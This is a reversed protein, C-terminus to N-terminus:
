ELEKLFGEKIYGTERPNLPRGKFEVFISIATDVNNVGSGAVARGWKYLAVGLNTSILGPKIEIGEYEKGKIPTFYDLKGGKKTETLIQKRMDVSIQQKKESSDRVQSFSIFPLLLFSAFLKKM